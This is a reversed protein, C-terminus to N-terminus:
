QQDVNIHVSTSLLRRKIKVRPEKKHISITDANAVVIKQSMDPGGMGFQILAKKGKELVFLYTNATTDKSIVPIMGATGREFFSNKSNNAMPISDTRAVKNRNTEVIKVTRTTNSNNSLVVSFGPDCSILSLLTFFIAIFQLM